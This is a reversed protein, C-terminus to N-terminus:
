IARYQYVVHSEAVTFGIEKYRKVAPRNDAEVYLIVQSSGRVVLHNLGAQMLPGGMGEGRYASALGVVYVEGVNGPHEKTWHFGALEEGDYLLWVGRPDFWETDMGRRLRELDWGGQEPHWSFADNNVELWQKDVSGQGWRACADAYDLLEFGEPLAIEAELEDADISMVLLERTVVMGKAAAFARAAPLNGHAWFQPQSSADILSLLESGVGQRRHAPHVVLEVAGDPACAALGSVDEGRRVEHHTHNLSTDELGRLFQESLPAIGDHSEAAAILQAITVTM